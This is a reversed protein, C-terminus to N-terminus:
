CGSLGWGSVSLCGWADADFIYTMQEKLDQSLGSEEEDEEEVRIGYM